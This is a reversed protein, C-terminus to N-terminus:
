LHWGSAGIRLWIFETMGGWGTKRLDMKINDKWRNIPTGLPRKQSYVLIRYANKKVEM